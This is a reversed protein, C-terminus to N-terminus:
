YLYTATIGVTRGPAVQAFNGTAGYSFGYSRYAKDTLNNGYVMLELSPTPSWAIAADLLTYADQRLTNSSDFYHAGTRRLTLQPRLVTDGLTVRGKAALTFGYRPVMPVDNGQCGTCASSDEFRRFTADNVFGGASLTLYRNVDWAVNFELGTSRTDGVNRLTQNGMNGDGYLQVDKSDVRYVALSARLGDGSYRMGAEYSISRERGFGQADDLSSPALNYGLPKYGQAVNVYGRWAPSFQYGAALQGLWSGQSASAEGAYGTGMM